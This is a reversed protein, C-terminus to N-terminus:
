LYRRPCPNFDVCLIFMKNKTHSRVAHISVAPFHKKKLMQLFVDINHLHALHLGRKRYIAQTRDVVRRNSPRLVSALRAMYVGNCLSLQFDILSSISEKLLLEVYRKVTELTVLYRHVRENWVEADIESAM